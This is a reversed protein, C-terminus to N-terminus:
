QDVRTVNFNETTQSVIHPHFNSFIESIRELIGFIIRINDTSITTRQEGKMKRFYLYILRVLVFNLISFIQTNQIKISTKTTWKFIIVKKAEEGKLNSRRTLRNIKFIWSSSSLMRFFNSHFDNEWELDFKLFINDVGILIKHTRQCNWICFFSFSFKFWYRPSSRTRWLLSFSAIEIIKNVNM